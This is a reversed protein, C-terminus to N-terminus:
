SLIGIHKFNQISPHKFTQARQYCAKVTIIRTKTQAASLQRKLKAKSVGIGWRDECVM